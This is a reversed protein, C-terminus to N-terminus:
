FDEDIHQTIKTAKGINDIGIFAWIRYLDIFGKPHEVFIRLWQRINQLIILRLILLKQLQFILQDSLLDLTHLPYYISLLAHIISAILLKSLTLIPLHVLFPLFVILYVEVELSFYLGEFCHKFSIIELELFLYLYKMVNYLFVIIM